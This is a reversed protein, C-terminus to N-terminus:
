SDVTAMHLSQSHAVSVQQAIESLREGAGNFFTELKQHREKYWDIFQPQSSAPLSEKLPGYHHSLGPHPDNDFLPQGSIRSIERCHEYASAAPRSIEDHYFHEQSLASGLQNLLSNLSAYAEVCRAMEHVKTSSLALTALPTFARRVGTATSEAVLAAESAISQQLRSLSSLQKDVESLKERLAKDAQMKYYIIAWLSLLLVGFPALPTAAFRALNSVAAQISEVIPSGTVAPIIGPSVLAVFVALMIATPSKWGSAWKKIGIKFDEGTM